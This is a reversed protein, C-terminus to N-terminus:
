AQPEAASPAEAPTPEQTKKFRKFFSFMTQRRSSPPGDGHFARVAHPSGRAVASVECKILRLAASAGARSAATTVHAQKAARGTRARDETRYEERM